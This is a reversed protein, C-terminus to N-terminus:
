WEQYVEVKQQWEQAKECDYDYQSMQYESEGHHVKLQGIQWYGGVWHVMVQGLQIYELQLHDVWGEQLQVEWWIEDGATVYAFEVAVILMDVRCVIKQLQLHQVNDVEQHHVMKYGLQVDLKLGQVMM